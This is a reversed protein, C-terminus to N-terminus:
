WCLLCQVWNLSQCNERNKKKKKKAGGLYVAFSPGSPYGTYRYWKMCLSQIHVACVSVGLLGILPPREGQAISEM